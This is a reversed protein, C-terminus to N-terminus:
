QSVRVVQNGTYLSDAGICGWCLTMILDWVLFCLSLWHSAFSRTKWFQRRAMMMFIDLKYRARSFTSASPGTAAADDIADDAKTKKTLPPSAYM